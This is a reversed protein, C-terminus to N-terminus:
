GDKRQTQLPRESGDATFGEKAGALRIFCSLLSLLSYSRVDAYPINVNMVRDTPRTILSTPRNLDQPPSFAM